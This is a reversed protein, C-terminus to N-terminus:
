LFLNVGKRHTQYTGWFSGDSNVILRINENAYIAGDGYYFLFKFEKGEFEINQQKAKVM